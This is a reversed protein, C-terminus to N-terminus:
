LCRVCSSFRDNGDTVVAVLALIALFMAANSVLLPLAVGITMALVVVVVVIVVVVIVSSWSPWM